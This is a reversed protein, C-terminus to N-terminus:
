EAGAVSAEKQRLTNASNTGDLHSVTVQPAKVTHGSGVELDKKLPCIQKEKQIQSGIRKEKVKVQIPVEVGGWMWLLGRKQLINLYILFRQAVYFYLSSVQAESKVWGRM